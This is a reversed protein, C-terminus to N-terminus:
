WGGFPSEPEKQILHVLPNPHGKVRAVELVERLSRGSAILDPGDLAVWVGRYEDEHQRLWELEPIRHNVPKSSRRAMSTTDSLLHSM